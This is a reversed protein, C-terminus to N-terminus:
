YFTLYMFYLTLCVETFNKIVNFSRKDYGPCINLKLSFAEKLENVTLDNGPQTIKYAELYKDFTVSSSNVKEALTPGIETFYKNFNEALSKIDKTEKIEVVKKKIKSIIVSM